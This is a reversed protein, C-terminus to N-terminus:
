GFVNNVFSKMSILLFLGIFNFPRRPGPTMTADVAIFSYKGFSKKVIYTSSSLTGKDGSYKMYYNDPDKRSM